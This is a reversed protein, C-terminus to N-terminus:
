TQLIQLDSLDVHGDRDFDARPDYDPNPYHTGYAAELIHLDNMYVRSQLTPLGEVACDADGYCTDKRCAQMVHNRPTAIM